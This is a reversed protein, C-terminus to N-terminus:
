YIIVAQKYLANYSSKFLGMDYTVEGQTPDNVTVTNNVKDYGTLVVCTANSIWYVDTSTSQVTAATTDGEETADTTATEYITFCYEESVPELDQSVWVLVPHNSAVHLLIEDFDDASLSKVYRGSNQSALYKQATDVIVPAFCGLGNSDFPSGIFAQSFTATGREACTLFNNALTVDTVDFGLYNLVMTLSTIENGTPLDPYQSLVPVSISHSDPLTSVLYEQPLTEAQTTPETTATTAETAEETTVAAAATPDTTTGEQGTGIGCVCRVCSACSLSILFLIVLLALLGMLRRRQLQKRTIRKKKKKKSTSANQGM